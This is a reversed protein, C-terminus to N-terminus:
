LDIVTVEVGTGARAAALDVPCGPPGNANWAIRHAWISLTATFKAVKFRAQFEPSFGQAIRPAATNESSVQQKKQAEALRGSAADNRPTTM